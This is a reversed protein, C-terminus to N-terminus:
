GDEELDDLGNAMQILQDLLHAMGRYVFRRPWTNTPSLAGLSDINARCQKLLMLIEAHLDARKEATM